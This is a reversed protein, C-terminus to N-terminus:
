WAGQTLVECGETTVLISHEYQASLSGDETRATWGDREDIVAVPSGQDIMPEISFIMGPVMHPGSGKHAIHTIQPEEHFEIGLGHGCYATVVSCGQSHAYKGIAYGIDGFFGGPRVQEIGITLCKKTVDMLHKAKTSIEGVAFMRSTDGYYGDLITTIDVNIIDGDKLVVDESPIGHCIVENISTCTAKPFGKYNLPAPIAGHERIFKEAPDNIDLTSVDAVVYPVLYELTAAALQCSKRIGEIQEPTKIIIMPTSERRGKRKRSLILKNVDKARMM